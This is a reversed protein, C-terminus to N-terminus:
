ALLSFFDQRAFSTPCFNGDSQRIHGGADFSGAREHPSCGLPQNRPQRAFIMHAINSEPFITALVEL